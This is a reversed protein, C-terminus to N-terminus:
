FEFYIFKVPQDLLMLGALLLLCSVAGLILPSKLKLRENLRWGVHYGIVPITLLLAYPDIANM